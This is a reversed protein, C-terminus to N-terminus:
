SVRASAASSAHPSPPRSWSSFRHVGLVM